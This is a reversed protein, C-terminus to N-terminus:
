PLVRRNTQCSM